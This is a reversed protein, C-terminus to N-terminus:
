SNEYYIKHTAYACHFAHFAGTLLGVMATMKVEHADRIIIISTFIYLVSGTGQFLVYYFTLPLYYASTASLISSMIMFVGNFSFTYATARLFNEVRMETREIMMWLTMGGCAQLSVESSGRVMMLCSLIYCTAGTSVYFLYPLIRASSDSLLSSAMMYIGNFSFTFSTGSLLRVAHSDRDSGLMMYVVLGGVIELFNFLGNVTAIYDNFDIRFSPKRRYGVLTELGTFNM